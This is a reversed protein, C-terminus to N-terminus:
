LLTKGEWDKGKAVGMLSTITPAIDIIRAEKLTKGIYTEGCIMLPITMDEPIDDGHTREHGGHDATVIITYEEHFEEYIKQICDWARRMAALYEGSMWGYKHGTEDTLGLYLFLFDPKHIKLYKAANETVVDDADEYINESYFFSYDLSGPRGLDRLEEWNYVFACHKGAEHLIEFLGKIPRVQPVYTNTLIGHRQPPVSHFLSMHCPLTVSPMVTKASLTGAGKKLFEKAFSSGCNMLGDPRM